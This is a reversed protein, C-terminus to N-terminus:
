WGIPKTQSPWHSPPIQDGSWTCWHPAEVPEKRNGKGKRRKKKEEGMPQQHHSMRQMRSLFIRGGMPLSPSIQVMSGALTDSCVQPSSHAARVVSSSPVPCWPTLVCRSPVTINTGSSFTLCCGPQAVKCCVVPQGPCLVVVGTAPSPHCAPDGGSAPWQGACLSAV